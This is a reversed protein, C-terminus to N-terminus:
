NGYVVLCHNSYLLYKIVKTDVFLIKSIDAKQATELISSNGFPGINLYTRTCTEGRKYTDIKKLDVEELDVVNTVNTIITTCSVLGILSLFIVFKSIMRGLKTSISLPLNM